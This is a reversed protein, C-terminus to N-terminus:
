VASALAISWMPRTVTKDWWGLSASNANGPHNVYPLVMVRGTTEWFFRLRPNANGSRPIRHPGQLNNSFFAQPASYGIDISITSGQMRTPDQFFTDKLAPGPRVRGLPDPKGVPVVREVEYRMFDAADEVLDIARLEISRTLDSLDAM